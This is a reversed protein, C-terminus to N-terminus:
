STRYWLSVLSLVGFCNMGAQLDRYACTLGLHHLYSEYQVVDGLALALRRVMGRGKGRVVISSMHLRGKVIIRGNNDKGLVEEKSTPLTRLETHLCWNGTGKTNREFKVLDLLKM